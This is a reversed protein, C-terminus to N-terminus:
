WRVTFSGRVSRPELPHYHVDDLGSAPEGALRSTYFYAIDDDDSDLLNFVDLRFEMPGRRYAAGANLLWSDGARVSNDEVLPAEGLYRLRMSASMGNQWVGNAGLVFTEKVAGPIYRGGDGDVRYEADTYTYAANLAWRESAQWFATAELGNRESGDNPETSGADGVFVLESDLELWFGIVTANFADGREYRLGLEAGESEVLADVSDIPEGSVPDITITAGRVDNSHFGRGWSAYAELGDGLRYASNIKPSVLADDGSGGNEPRFASVDWDYAEGRLGVTTRFRENFAIEVDGYVSVSTERIRDERTTSLRRKGATRYLGVEDIDDFRADGGWRYFVTKGALQSAVSGETWLGWTTRVDRQEFEDGNVPDDLFYTFNSFLEFDYDVVYGGTRWRDFDLEATLAYRETSGGLDPDLFGLEDILGSEVARRPVQDTSDWEGDYGQLGVRARGGALDFAYSLYFKHQELNEELEWPGDYGALDIAGTLTGDGVDISSAVVGRSYGYAGITAQIVSDPLKEYASFDVGGASSFDGNIAHYPGKRYLSTEVLEPIIFNLDLYGQGHGHSRMNLPVGDFHASFDTGHDLNFGRLFYQNAKGTGSHQTAVMGPVSEVLEGVRLMPPLRIDAYGVLGESATHAAGIQQQARGYVVLEEVTEGPTHAVASGCLSTALTVFICQVIAL